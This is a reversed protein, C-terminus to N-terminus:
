ARGAAPPLTQAMAPLAVLCAAALIKIHKEYM